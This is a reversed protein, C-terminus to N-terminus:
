EMEPHKALSMQEATTAKEKLIQSIRNINYDWMWYGAYAASVFSVIGVSVGTFIMIFIKVAWGVANIFGTDHAPHYVNYTNEGDDSEYIDRYKKFREQLEVLLKPSLKRGTEEFQHIGLFRSAPMEEVHELDWQGDPGQGIWQKDGIYSMDRGNVKIIDSYHVDINVHDRNITVHQNERRFDLETRSYVTLIFLLQTLIFVSAM